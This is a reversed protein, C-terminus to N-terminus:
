SVTEDKERVRLVFNKMTISGNETNCVLFILIGNEIALKTNEIRNIATGPEHLLEKLRSKEVDVNYCTIFRDLEEQNSIELKM